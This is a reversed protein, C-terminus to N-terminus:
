WELYESGSRKLTIILDHLWKIGWDASRLNLVLLSLSLVGIKIKQEEVEKEKGERELDLELSTTISM